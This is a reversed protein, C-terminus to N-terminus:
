LGTWYVGQLPIPQHRANRVPATVSPGHLWLSESGCTIRLSYM